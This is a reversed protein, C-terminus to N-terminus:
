INLLHTFKDFEALSFNLEFRLLSLLEIECQNILEQPVHSFQSVERNSLSEDDCYKSALIVATVFLCTVNHQTIYSPHRRVLKNLYILAVTYYLSPLGSTTIFTGILTRLNNKFPTITIYRKPGTHTTILATIAQHLRYAM